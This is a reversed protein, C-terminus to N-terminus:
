NRVEEEPELGALWKSRSDGVAAALWCYPRPSLRAGAFFCGMARLALRRRGSGRHASPGLSLALPAWDLSGDVLRFGHRRYLSLSGSYRRNSDLHTPFQPSVLFFPANVLLVGGPKLWGAFKSVVQPPSPVHELVDMCSIADFSGDPIQSEDAVVRVPADAAAFIRRAFELDTRSVEFYTVDHGCLALHLSDFGPGDGFCLIKFPSTGQRALFKAVWARMALKQDRRNWAISGFLYENNESYFAALKDSWVYPEIGRALMEQYFTGGPRLEERHLKRRVEAPSEGTAEVITAVLRANDGLPPVLPDAILPSM